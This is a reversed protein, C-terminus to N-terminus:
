SRRVGWRGSGGPFSLTLPEDEDADYCADLGLEKATKGLLKDMPPGLLAEGARNVLRLRREPDFTFVAVDIEGMITRLLATAEFAGLRQLRLTEGLSNIELLVEGLANEGGAGRARISYDGERLAALLNSMTQLPRITHERTSSIFVAFCGVILITLTWQLKASYDGSWLLALAVVIAPAVAALILWSIRGEYSLRHRSKPARNM